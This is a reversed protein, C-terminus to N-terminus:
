IIVNFFLLWVFYFFYVLWSNLRFSFTEWLTQWKFVQKRTPPVASPPRSTDKRPLNFVRSTRQFKLAMVLKIDEHMNSFVHATHRRGQPNSALVEQPHLPSTPSYHESLQEYFLSLVWFHSWYSLLKIRSIPFLFSPHGSSPFWRIQMLYCAGM